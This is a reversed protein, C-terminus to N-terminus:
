LSSQELFLLRGEADLRSVGDRAIAATSVDKQLVMLAQVLQPTHRGCPLSSPWSAPKFRLGVFRRCVRMTRFWDCGCLLSFCLALSDSDLRAMASLPKFQPADMRLESAIAAAASARVQPRDEAESCRTWLALLVDAAMQRVRSSAGDSLIVSLV